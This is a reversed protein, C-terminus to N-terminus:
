PLPPQPPQPTVRQWGSPCEGVYPYYAKAANCYYWYQNPEPAPEAQEVYIPPPAREIIIPRSPPYYYHPAPYYAPGWVPGFYVGVHTSVHGHPHGAWANGMGGVLLLVIALSCNRWTRTIM